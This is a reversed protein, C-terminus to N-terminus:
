VRLRNGSSSDTGAYKRINTKWFIKDARVHRKVSEVWEQEPRVARPGSMAGVIVVECAGGVDAKLPGLIPEISLYPRPCGGVFDDVVQKQLEPTVLDCLFTLGQMTNAPWEVGAYATPTKSLFMFTHRRHKAVEEVVAQTWERPWYFIDSM